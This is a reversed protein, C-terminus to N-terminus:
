GHLGQGSKDTVENPRHKGVRVDADSVQVSFEAPQTPGVDLQIGTGQLQDQRILPQGIQRHAAHLKDLKRDARRQPESISDLLASVGTDSNIVAQQPV